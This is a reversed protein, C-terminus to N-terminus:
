RNRMYQRIFYLVISGEGVSNAVRRIAGDRVDGVAFVGPVNTELLYPDRDLSWGAPRKGNQLLNAGTVLFGKGDRCVVGDLWETHPEAGIFIFLAAAPLKETLGTDHHRVTIEELRDQGRVEVVEANPVVSINPITAIREVLYHSMSKSLSDGRVIMRISRAVESFYVAAQGASNAGGVIYVDEDKCSSAETIAAGYYIGAGTLRDMGPVDLRRWQVGAAIVVSHAALEQGNSLKVVRYEGDAVLGVAEAPALVETGFRRVQAVGRRALDAGSLGSPFGLYNEIRSSLGAQGGAAERELLVTSLGETSCYLACALGAPGAGVVIVDYFRGSPVMALGLKAAIQSLEPRELVSGDPLIVVPLAPPKDGLAALVRTDTIGEPEIWRYPVQSKALFDKLRHTEPAWRTGVIYVGDFAERNGAQWDELQDALVPYLHQEPPEWPKMLYHNLKVKNIADIAAASDAYATLLVRRAEPQLAIAEQLFETGSMLPMRQDVLFLAVQDGRSTLQRVVGMAKQPSDAALVRYHSSFKTKLDREVARLVSLDDDIAIIYPKKM